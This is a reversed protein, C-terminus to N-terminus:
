KGAFFYRFALGTQWLYYNSPKYVPTLSYHIYWGLQMTNQKAKWEYAPAIHLLPQYSATSINSQFLNPSPNYLLGPLRNDKMSNSSAIRIFHHIGVSLTLLGKQAKILQIQLDTPVAIYHSSYSITTEKKFFTVLTNSPQAISDRRQRETIKFSSYQYQIGTVFFTTASIKRRMVLGLGIHSNKKIAYETVLIGSGPQGAVSSGLQTYSANDADFGTSPFPSTRIDAVGTNVQFGFQWKKKFADAKKTLSSDKLQLNIQQISDTNIKEVSSHLTVGTDTASNHVPETTVLVSNVTDNKGINQNPVVTNKATNQAQINSIIRNHKTQFFFKDAVRKTTKFSNKFARKQLITTQKEKRQKIEIVTKNKEQENQTEIKTIVTKSIQTELTDNDAVFAKQTEESDTQASQYNVVFWGSGLTVAMLPLWLFFWRRRRKDKQLQAEVNQWVETSPQIKFDDMQRHMNTEFNNDAM